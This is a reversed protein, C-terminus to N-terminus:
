AILLGATPQRQRYDIRELATISAEVNAQSYPQGAKQVVLPRLPEVDRHPNAILDIAAVNQGEYASQPSQVAVQAAAATAFLLFFVGSVHM